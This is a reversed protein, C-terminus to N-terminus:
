RETRVLIELSHERKREAEPLREQFQAFTTTERTVGAGGKGIGGATEAITRDKKDERKKRKLGREPDREKERGRKPNKRADVM